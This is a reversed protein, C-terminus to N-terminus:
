RAPRFSDFIRAVFEPLAGEETHYQLFFRRKSSNVLLVRGRISGKKYIYERGHMGNVTVSEQKLFEKDDGGVVLM